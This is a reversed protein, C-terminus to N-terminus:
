SCSDHSRDLWGCDVLTSPMVPQWPCHVCTCTSNMTLALRETMQFMSPGTVECISLRRSDSRSALPQAANTDPDQIDPHVVPGMPFASVTLVVYVNYTFFLIFPM